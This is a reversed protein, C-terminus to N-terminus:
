HKLDINIKLMYHVLTETAAFCKYPKGSSLRRYFRKENRIKHGHYWKSPSESAVQVDALYELNNVTISINKPYIMKCEKLYIRGIRSNSKLFKSRKLTDSPYKRFWGQWYKITDPFCNHFITLKEIRITDPTLRFVGRLMIYGESDDLPVKLRSDFSENKFIVILSPHRGTDVKPRIAFIYNESLVSDEPRNVTIKFNSVDGVITDIVLVKTVAQSYTTISLFLLFISLILRMDHFWKLYKSALWHKIM